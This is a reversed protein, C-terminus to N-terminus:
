YTYRLRMVGKCITWQVKTSHCDPWPWLHVMRRLRESKKNCVKAFNGWGRKSNALRQWCCFNRSRLEVVVFANPLLWFVLFGLKAVNSADGCLSTLHTALRQTRALANDHANAKLSALSRVANVACVCASMFTRLCLAWRLSNTSCMSSVQLCVLPVWM